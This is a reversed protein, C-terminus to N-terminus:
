MVEASNAAACTARGPLVGAPLLLVLSGATGGRPAVAM